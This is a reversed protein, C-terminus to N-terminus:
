ELLKEVEQIFLVLFSNVMKIEEDTTLFVCNGSEDQHHNPDQEVPSLRRQYIQTELERAQSRIKQEADFFRQAFATLGFAGMLWTTQCKFAVSRGYDQGDATMGRSVITDPISDDFDNLLYKAIQLRRTLKERDIQSM